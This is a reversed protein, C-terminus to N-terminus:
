RTGTKVTLSATSPLHYGVNECLYIGNHHGINGFPSFALLIYKWIVEHECKCHNKHSSFLYWQPSFIQKNVVFLCLVRLDPLADRIYEKM